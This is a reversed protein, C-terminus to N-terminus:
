YKNIIYQEITKCMLYLFSFGEFHEFITAM